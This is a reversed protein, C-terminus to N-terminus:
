RYEVRYGYLDEESAQEVRTLTTEMRRIRRVAVQTKSVVSRDNKSGTVAVPCPGVPLAITHSDRQQQTFRLHEIM